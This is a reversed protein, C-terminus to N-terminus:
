RAREHNEIRIRKVIASSESLAGKWCPLSPSPSKTEQIEKMIHCQVQLCTTNVCLSTERTQGSSCLWSASLAVGYVFPGHVRMVAKKKGRM